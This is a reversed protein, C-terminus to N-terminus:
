DHLQMLSAGSLLLQNSNFYKVAKPEQMEAAAEEGSHVWGLLRGAEVNLALALDQNMRIHLNRNQFARVELLPVDKKKTPCKFHFTHAKGKLELWYRSASSTLVFTDAGQFGLNHAVVILDGVLDNASESLGNRWHEKTGYYEKQVGGTHTLVIRYDLKFHSGGHEKLEEVSRYRWHDSEFLRQNSKYNIVNAKAVMLLYVQKLQEEIYLNINRVAWAVVMGINDLTFDVQAHKHLRELLKQRSKSTLRTNISKLNDFLEKWFETRLSELKEKLRTMIKSPFVDFEALLSADLEALRAYTKQMKALRMNYIQVLAAPYGEGVVLDSRNPIVEENPDTEWRKYYSDVFGKFQEDFSKAFPDDMKDERQVYLRLVEVKARARRDESDEFSFAGVVKLEYSRFKLADNIVESQKWREPIVLYILKSMSQRIIKETWPIFEKYPPNCFTVDVTKSYLTQQHFDTGVVMIDPDMRHCLIASKEIALLDATSDLQEKWALLFKGTGAGIDLVVKAIHPLLKYDALVARIIEDTTPYFEHDEDAAKLEKVLALASM